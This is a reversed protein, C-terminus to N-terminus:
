MLACCCGGGGGGGGGLEGLYPKIAPVLGAYTTADAPQGVAMFKWSNPSPSGPTGASDNRFLHGLLVTNTTGEGSRILDFKAVERADFGDSVDLMRIYTHEVSPWDNSAFATAVFFVSGVSLPITDLSLVVQEDDLIDPDPRGDVHNVGPAVSSANGAWVVETLAGKGDLMLAAASIQLSSSATGQAGDWGLGFVVRSAGEFTLIDGPTLALSQALDSALRPQLISLLNAHSHAAGLAEGVAKYKWRGGSDEDRFLIACLHSSHEGRLASEFLEYQAITRDPATSITSDALTISLSRARAFSGGFANLVFMVTSISEPLADLEIVVRNASSASPVHAVAGDVGMPSTEDVRAVPSGRADFVYATFAVRASSGHEGHEGDNNSSSPVVPDFEGEWRASVSASQSGDFLVMDGANLALITQVQPRVEQRSQSLFPLLDAHSSGLANNGIARLKWKGPVEPDRFLSALVLANHDGHLDGIDFMAVERKPSSSANILRTYAGSISSLSSRFATVVVVVQAISSPILDLEIFVSEPDTATPTPVSSRSSGAGVGRGYEGSHLIVGTDLLSPVDVSAPWVLDSSAPSSLAAMHSAYLPSEELPWRPSRASVVGLLQSNDDLLLLATSVDNAHGDWGTGLIVRDPGEFSLIDGRSLLVRKPAVKSRQAAAWADVVDQEQRARIHSCLTKVKWKGPPLLADPNSEAQQALVLASAPDRFLLLTVLSPAALKSSKGDFALSYSAIQREFAGSVDTLSVTLSTLGALGSEPATSFLSFLLVNTDLGVDALEIEITEERSTGGVGGPGSTSGGTPGSASASVSASGKSEDDNPDRPAAASHVLAGTNSMQNDADVREMVYSSSDISYVSASMNLANGTSSVWAFRLAIRSPGDFSLIDGKVLALSSADIPLPPATGEDGDVGQSTTLEPAGSPTESPGGGGTSVFAMMHSAASAIRDMLGLPSGRVPDGVAQFKWKGVKLADRYLLALVIGPHRGRKYSTYQGIDRRDLPAVASVDALVAQTASVPEFSSGPTAGLAFVLVGIHLPVHPLALEFTVSGSAGQPLRQAPGPGSAYAISGDPSSRVLPSSEPDPHAGVYSVPAGSQDYLMCLGHFGSPAGDYWALTVASTSPGHFSLVDSPGLDVIQTVDASLDAALRPMIADYSLVASNYASGMAKVTWKASAADRFLVALIAASTDPAYRADFSALEQHSGGSANAFTISATSLRASRGRTNIVLAVVIYSTNPDVLPLEVVFSSSASTLTVAGSHSSPSSLDVAELLEADASLLLAVPTADVSAPGWSTSLSVSKPGEFNIMDGADLALSSPLATKLHGRLQSLYKRLPRGSLPGMVARLSWKGLSADHFLVALCMGSTSVPEPSFEALTSGPAQSLLVRSPVQDSALAQDDVGHVIVALSTVTEPLSSLGIQLSISVEDALLGHGVGSLLQWTPPVQGDEANSLVGIPASSADFALLSVSPLPHHHSEPFAIDVTLGDSSPSQSFYVVDGQGLVLGNSAPSTPAVAAAALVDVLAADDRAQSPTLLAHFRSFPTSADSSSPFMRAVLLASAADLGHTPLPLEALLVPPASSVSANYIRVRPRPSSSPSLAALDHSTYATLSLFLIVAPDALPLNSIRFGPGDANPTESPRLYVASPLTACRPSSSSVTGLHTGSSPTFASLTPSLELLPPYTFTIVAQRAGM